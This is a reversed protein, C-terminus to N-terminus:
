RFVRLIISRVHARLSLSRPLSSSLPLTLRTFGTTVERGLEKSYVKKGEKGAVLMEDEKRAEGCYMCVCMGEVGSISWISDEVRAIQGKKM